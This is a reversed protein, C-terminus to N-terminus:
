SLPLIYYSLYLDLSPIFYYSTNTSMIYSISIYKIGEFNLSRAVNELAISEQANKEHLENAANM